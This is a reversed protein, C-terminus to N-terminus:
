AAGGATVRATCLVRRLATASNAIARPDTATDSFFHKKPTHGVELEVFWHRKARGVRPKVDFESLVAALRPWVESKRVSPPAAIARKSM